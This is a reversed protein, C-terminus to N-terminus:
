KFKIEKSDIMILETCIQIGFYWCELCLWTQQMLWCSTAPDWRRQARRLTIGPPAPSALFSHWHCLAAGSVPCRGSQGPRPGLWTRTWFPLLCREPCDPGFSEFRSFLAGPASWSIRSSNNWCPCSGRLTILLICNESLHWINVQCYFLQCLIWGVKYLDTREQRLGTDCKDADSIARWRWTPSENNLIFIRSECNATSDWKTVM